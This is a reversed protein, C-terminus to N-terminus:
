GVSIEPDRLVHVLRDAMASRSFSRRAKIMGRRGMERLRGPDRILAVISNAVAVVDTPDVVVGDVGDEIIEAPGGQNAGLVPKAAHWAEVFSLGFGEFRSPMVFLDCADYYSYKGEDNPVQGPFIVHQAVGHEVALATLTEEHEGTGACMYVVDPHEQIVRPLARIVVDQGKYPALRALTLLVTTSSSIGWRHRVSQGDHVQCDFRSEIGNYVVAVHQSPSGFRSNLYVRRMHSSVCIVLESSRYFRKMQWGLLSKVASRSAPARIHSSGVGHVVPIVRAERSGLSRCMSAVRLSARDNVLIVTPRFRRVVRFFQHASTLMMAVPNDDPTIWDVAFSETSLDVPGNRRALVTVDHGSLSLGSALEYCYTAVGGPFPLFEHSYLLIRM